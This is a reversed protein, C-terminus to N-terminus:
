HRRTMMSKCFMAVDHSPEKEFLQEELVGILSEYDSMTEEPPQCNCKNCNRQDLKLDMRIVGSCEESNTGNGCCSDDDKVSSSICKITFMDAEMYNWNSCRYCQCSFYYHKELHEKRRSTPDLLDLYSIFMQSMVQPGSLDKLARVVIARDNELDFSVSATPTCAHDLISPGIYLASGVAVQDIPDLVNFGM